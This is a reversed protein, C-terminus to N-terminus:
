HTIGLAQAAARQQHRRELAGVTLYIANCLAVDHDTTDTSGGAAALRLDIM